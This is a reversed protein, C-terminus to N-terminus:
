EQIAFFIVTLHCLQAHKERTSSVILTEESMQTTVKKQIQPKFIKDSSRLSHRRLGYHVYCIGLPSELGAPVDALLLFKGQKCM